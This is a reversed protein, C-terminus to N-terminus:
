INKGNWKLVNFAKIFIRFVNLPTVEAVEIELVRGDSYTVTIKM